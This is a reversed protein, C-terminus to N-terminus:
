LLFLLGFPFLIVSSIIGCPGYKKVVEHDGRACRAFVAAFVRGNACGAVSGSPM